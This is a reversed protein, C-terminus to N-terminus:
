GSNKKGACVGTHDSNESTSSDRDAFVVLVRGEGQEITEVSVTAGTYRGNCNGALAGGCLLAGIALNLGSNFIETNEDSGGLETSRECAL